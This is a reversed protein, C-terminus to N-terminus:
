CKFLVENLEKRDRYSDKDNTVLVNYVWTLTNELIIKSFIQFLFVPHIM